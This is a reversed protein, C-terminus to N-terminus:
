SAMLGGRTASSFLMIGRCESIGPGDVDADDDFHFELTGIDSWARQYTYSGDFIGGGEEDVHWTFRNGALFRVSDVNSFHMVREVFVADFAAQDAPADGQIVDDGKMSSLNTMYGTNPSLMLNMVRIPRDASVFLQWRGIGGDGLSGEFDDDGGELQHATLTRSAGAPLTVM